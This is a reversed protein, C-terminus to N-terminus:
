LGPSEVQPMRRQLPAIGFPAPDDQAPELLKALMEAALQGNRKSRSM